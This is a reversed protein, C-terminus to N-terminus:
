PVEISNWSSKSFKWPIETFKNKAQTRIHTSGSLTDTHPMTPLHTRTAPKAGHRVLAIAHGVHHRPVAADEEVDGGLAGTLLGVALGKGAAQKIGHCLHTREECALLLGSSGDSTGWFCGSCISLLAQFDNSTIYACHPLIFGIWPAPFVFRPSVSPINYTFFLALLSVYLVLSSFSRKCCQTKFVAFHYFFSQFYRSVITVPFLSYKM